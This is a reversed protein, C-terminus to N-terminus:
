LWPELQLIGQTWIGTGGFCSHLNLFPL